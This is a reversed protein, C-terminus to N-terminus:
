YFIQRIFMCALPDVGISQCMQQFQQRFIPNTNIESKHESAFRQLSSKFLAMQKQM